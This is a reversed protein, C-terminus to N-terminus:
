SSKKQCRDKVWKIGTSTGSKVKKAGVAAAVKAKDLGKSAAVKVEEMKKSTGSGKKEKSTTPKDHNDEDSTDGMGWEDAKSGMTASDIDCLLGDDVKTGFFYDYQVGM